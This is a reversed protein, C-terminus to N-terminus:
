LRLAFYAAGVLAARPNLSVRVAIRSMLDSLRGADVFARMFRGNQLVPLIKPAIGGAVFVGGIALCKLALNGAEAGYLSAFLELAARCVDDGAALGVASIVASPDESALRQTLWAPESATGSRRLFDYLNHLGPGSLVRECSVHGGFRERLYQWLAIEQDTQPALAAHGGESAIPHHLTGDWYLMAEGLGTGAAIVAINGRRPPQAGANLVVLEDARLHLMGYATAELDNLLKLRHVNVVGALTAEDFHWDLNTLHSGGDIVPGAVGICAGSLAPPSTTKLFARLIDELSGYDASHFTAEQVPQLASGSSEFLALATKTGGLDGALIM